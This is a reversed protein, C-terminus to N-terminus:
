AIEYIVESLLENDQNKIAKKLKKRAYYLRSKVTGEPIKLAYSIEEVSLEEIYFLVIIARHSDTLGNVARCLRDKEERDEVMTEPNLWSPLKLHELTDQFFHVWRKARNLWSYTLNVTMRYLWPEFPQTQDFSEAYKYVRVFTEQLIDEALSEDHTIALATRYVRKKYRRYLEGLAEIDGLQVQAMLSGDDRPVTVM